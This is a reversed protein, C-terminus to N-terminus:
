FKFETIDVIANSPVPEENDNNDTIISSYDVYQRKLDEITVDSLDFIFDGFIINEM